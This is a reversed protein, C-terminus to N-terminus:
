ARFVYENGSVGRVCFGVIAMAQELREENTARSELAVTGVLGERLSGVICAGAAQVDQRPFDQERIGQEIIAEFVRALKPLYKRRAAEIDPEV